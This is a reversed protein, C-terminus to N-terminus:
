LGDIIEKCKEKLEPNLPECNTIIKLTSKVIELVSYEESGVSTLKHLLEANLALEVRNLTEDIGLISEISINNLQKLDLKFKVENLKHWAQEAKPCSM